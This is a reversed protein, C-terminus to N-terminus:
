SSPPPPTWLGAVVQGYTQGDDVQDGVDALWLQEVQEPAFAQGDARDVFYVSGAPVLRRTPKPRRHHMDWGSVHQPRGICAARLRIGELQGFRGVFGQSTPALAAPRWGASFWAPNVVLLRLGHVPQQRVREVLAQPVAFLTRACSEAQAPRRDAGLTLWQGSLVDGPLGHVAVGLSWQHLAELSRGVLPELTRTAFVMGDQGVGLEPDMALHVDVRQAMGDRRPDTAALAPFQELLWHVLDAETFFRPAPLPKGRHEAPLGPWLLAAMAVGEDTPAHYLVARAPEPRLGLWRVQNGSEVAFPVADLPRPWMRHAATPPSKGEALPQCLGLTAGLQLAETLDRWENRGHRPDPDVVLPTGRQAEIRRAWATRLAGRLTSAAPWDFSGPTNAQTSYWGRGDKLFMGDRPLLQLHTTTM